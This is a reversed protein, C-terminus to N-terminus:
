GGCRDRTSVLTSVLLTCNRHWATTNPPCADHPLCPLSQSSRLIGQNPSFGVRPSSGSKNLVQLVGIVTVPEEREDRVPVWVEEKKALEAM